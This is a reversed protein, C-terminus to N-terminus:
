ANFHIILTTEFSFDHVHMCRTFPLIPSEYKGKGKREKAKARITCMVKSSNSHSEIQKTENPPKILRNEWNRLPYAIKTPIRHSHRHIPCKGM